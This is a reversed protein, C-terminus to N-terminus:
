TQLHLHSFETTKTLRSQISERRRRHHQVSNHRQRSQSITVSTEASNATKM